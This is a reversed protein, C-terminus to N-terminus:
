PPPQQQAAGTMPVFRVPAVDERAVGDPTRTLVALSQVGRGVPIVMRGGPALQDVLPQPVHDPAATVVIADFPGEEPWGAYGDGTRTRVRGYGLADLTARARRALEPVIEISWVHPTIEALVAAQYGSGTGVELVRSDPRVRALETMLAVIYPQSITQEEGIALPRDDYASVRVADPVFAHRPVARMARLVAPDKVGRAEIQDRVMRARDEQRDAAGGPPCGPALCLSALLVVAITAGRSRM